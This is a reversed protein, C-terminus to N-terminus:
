FTGSAFTWLNGQASESDEIVLDVICMQLIDVAYLVTPLLPSRWSSDSSSDVDESPLLAVMPRDESDGVILEAGTGSAM